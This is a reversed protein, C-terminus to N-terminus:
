RRNAPYRLQRDVRDERPDTEVLWAVGDRITLKLPAKGPQAISGFAAREGFTVIAEESEAGREIRGVWTWDGSPHEIHREYKFDLAEGSPTTIRMSGDVIARLAHSESIDARHWTYAGDHRVVRQKPYGVLDGKDPLSAFSDARWSEAQPQAASVSGAARQGAADRSSASRPRWDEACGACLLLLLSLSLYKSM